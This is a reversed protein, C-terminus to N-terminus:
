KQRKLRVVWASAWAAFGPSVGLAALDPLEGPGILQKLAVLDALKEVPVIPADATGGTMLDYPFERIFVDNKWSGSRSLVDLLVRGEIRCFIEGQRPAIDLFEYISELSTLRQLGYRCEPVQACASLLGVALGVISLSRCSAPIM